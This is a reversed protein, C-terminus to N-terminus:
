KIIIVDAAEVTVDSQSNIAVGVDSQALVPGDNVGDGVFMVKKGSKQLKQVIEKKNEPYARYTVNKEPIGLHNAIKLAAFKHDGTIMHIEFGHAVLYKCVSNAEVKALHKEELAILMVIKSEIAVQIVTKGELELKQIDRAINAEVNIDHRNMLKENGIFISVKTDENKSFELLKSHLARCYIGEGTFTEIDILKYKESLDKKCQNSVNALLAKEISKGIPHESQAECIAAIFEVEDKPIEQEYHVVDSIEPVGNTLTGTKDFVVTDIKSSAELISGGKILIGLGAAIGSCVMVATPTALGLACPCAIVVTSIGFTFVFNFKSDQREKGYVDYGYIVIAWIIWSAISCIIIFPVFYESIRDAISQIPAKDTQANEVLKLIQNLSSEEEIVDVKLIFAGTELKTGGFVKDGINKEVRRSEGTLISENCYGSGYVVTSDSPIVDGNKVKVLDNKNLQEIPINREEGNFSISNKDAPTFLNASTVKISALDSLKQVTKSSAYAELFKGICIIFLITSSVEFSHAHETVKMEFAVKNQLAYGYGVIFLVIGYIISASTGIVVLTDMNSSKSKLAEWASVYLPGGLYLQLVLSFVATVMVYLNPGHPFGVRLTVFKSLGPVNPVVWIMFLIPIWLMLSRILMRKKKSAEKQKQDRIDEKSKKEKIAASFKGHNLVDLVERISLKNIDIVIKAQKTLASFNAEIAGELDMVKRTLSAECSSCSMGFVNLMFTKPEATKILQEEEGLFDAIEFHCTLLL